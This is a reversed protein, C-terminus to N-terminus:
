SANSLIQVLKFPNCHAVMDRTATAGTRGEWEERGKRKWHTADWKWNSLLYQLSLRAQGSAIAVRHVYHQPSPIGLLVFLTHHFCQTEENSLALSGGQVSVEM